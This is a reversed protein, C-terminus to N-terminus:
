VVYEKRLTAVEERILGVPPPVAGQFLNIGFAYGNTGGAVSGLGPCLRVESNGMGTLSNTYLTTGYSPDLKYVYGNCGALAYGGDTIVDTIGYGCGPLSTQWITSIDSAQLAVAYGNIGVLVREGGVALRVENNGRGPLGNTNLVSLGSSLKYVYGNCGAYIAGSASLVSTVSYGCGPLSVRGIETLTAENLQLVYGNTGVYVSQTDSALRIEHYGMGSLGNQNLVSGGSPDLRYVFGNSAAYLKGNSCLMSVINYGCGPLSTQWQTVLDSTRLNAAYGNIGVYLSGGYIALRIENNGRGPLGNQAVVQGSARNIKYVHGNCGTYIFAGDTVVSTVGYGCGPLSTQFQSTCYDWGIQGRTWQCMDLSNADMICSDHPGSCNVCNNNPVQFKGGLSGCTCASAYEDLAGFVHCSEHAFVKNIQSPGWGDNDYNMILRVGTQYAFHNLPYKTFFAVYSWNTGKDSRLEAAYAECGTEGGAFGLQALAADRWPREMIEYPNDTASQVSYGNTGAYVAGSPSVAFRVEQRGLGPLSNSFQVSGDGSRLQYIYGNCGAMVYGGVPIVETIGYGCGPLSTQWKTTINSLDLGLAYGNSGVYVFSNDVALRIENNGMGALGNQNLVSGSSPDIRYVQGNSGAFMVGSGSIVSVITYGCGPLSTQWITSVDSTKLGIAYGNTGALLINNGLALRVEANGRGPLSNHNLVSGDGPNLRYIHGNSGAYVSSGNAVVSTINYGCGPLSCEWAKSLDSLNLAVVYGNTGLYLRNSDAALRVEHNGMGPLNNTNLVTGNSPDQKYVIGNCGAYLAGNAEIVSTINYGCGPLSTQWVTFSGPAVDVNIFHTDYILQTGASPDAGALFTSGTLTQSLINQYESNSIAYDNPGSVIVLGIATSGTMTDAYGVPAARLYPDQRHSKISQPTQKRPDDWSMIEFGADGDKDKAIFKTPDPIPEDSAPEKIAIPKVFLKDLAVQSVPKTLLKGPIAVTEPKSLLQDKDSLNASMRVQKDEFKEAVPDEEMPEQARSKALRKEHVGSAKGTATALREIAMQEWAAAMARSVGDLDTPRTRSSRTFEGPVKGSPFQAVLTRATLQHLVRGGSREIEAVAGDSDNTFLLVENSM